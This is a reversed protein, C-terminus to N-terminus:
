VRQALGLWSELGRLRKGALSILVPKLIKVFSRKM